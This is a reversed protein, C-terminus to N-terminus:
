ANGLFELSTINGQVTLGDSSFSDIFLESGFFSINFKGLNLTIETGTYKVIRKLGEVICEGNGCLEIHPESAYAIINESNKFRKVIDGM